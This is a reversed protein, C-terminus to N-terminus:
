LWEQRVIGLCASTDLVVSKSFRGRERVVASQSACACPVVM